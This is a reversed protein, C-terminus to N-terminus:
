EAWADLKALNAPVVFYAVFQEARVIGTTLQQNVLSADHRIPNVINATIPGKNSDKMSWTGDADRRIFHFDVCEDYKHIFAAIVKTGIPLRNASEGGKPQWQKLGDATCARILEKAREGPTWPASALGDSWDSVVDYDGKNGPCM